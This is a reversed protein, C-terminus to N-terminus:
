KKSLSILYSIIDGKLGQYLYSIIDWFIIYEPTQIFHLVFTLASRVKLVYNRWLPAQNTTFAQM